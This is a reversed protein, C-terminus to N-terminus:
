TGAEGGHSRDWFIQLGYLTLNEEIRDIGESQSGILEAFGGTAVVPASPLEEKM